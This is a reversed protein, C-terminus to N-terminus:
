IFRVDLFTPRANAAAAAATNAEPQEESQGPSCAVTFHEPTFAHLPEEEQAVGSLEQLPWLLQWDLPQDQIVLLSHIALPPVTM